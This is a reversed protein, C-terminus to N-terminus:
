WTVIINVGQSFSENIQESAVFNVAQQFNEEFRLVEQIGEGADVVLGECGINTM